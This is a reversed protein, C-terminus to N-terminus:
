VFRRAEMRISELSSNPANTNYQQRQAGSLWTSSILVMTMEARPPVPTSSFYLKLQVTRQTKTPTGMYMEKMSATEAPKWNLKSTAKEHTLPANWLQLLLGILSMVIITLTAKVAM